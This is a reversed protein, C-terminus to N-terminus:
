FYFLSVHYNKGHEGLQEQCLISEEVYDNLCITSRPDEVCPKWPWGSLWRQRLCNSFTCLMFSSAHSPQTGFRAPIRMVSDQLGNALVWDCSWASSCPFTPFHLRARSNEYLWHDKGGPVIILEFSGLIRKQTLPFLTRFLCKLIWNWTDNHRCLPLLRQLNWDKQQPVSGLM